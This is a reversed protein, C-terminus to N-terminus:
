ICVYVQLQLQMQIQMHIQIQATNADILVPVDDTMLPAM